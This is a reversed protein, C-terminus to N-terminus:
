RNPDYRVTLQMTGSAPAPLTITETVPDFNNWPKGDLEVGIIAQQNPSRVRLKTEQPGRVTFTIQADIRHDRWHSTIKFAIKGWRTPLASVAITQGDEFWERPAAKCLWLTDSNPDEFALLWRLLMPVSLQAPVCYPAASLKPDVRRTEPATWTGRTYQHASLSYLELLFERVHDHQLLGYAHGYSLFGALEQSNYGYATPVGLLLDRHAERYRVITNVEDATLGGSYLLEMNARYARFQPDQPDRRAAVDFPERAGAIVPLCPPQSDPLLTRQISRQLDASLEQSERGLREGWTALSTDHRAKGIQVWVDGLDRFGRAAESSNSFYPQVYRAPDAELCSDAECWGAIM